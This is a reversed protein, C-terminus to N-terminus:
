MRRRGHLGALSSEADELTQYLTGWFIVQVDEATATGTTKIRENLIRCVYVEIPWTSMPFLTDGQLRTALVVEDIDKDGLGYGQGVFPPEVRALLYDDRKPVCLRQEAICKRPSVLPETEISALYFVTEM